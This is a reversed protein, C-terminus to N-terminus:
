TLLKLFQYPSAIKGFTQEYSARESEMLAKHLRLLAERVQALRQNIADSQPQIPHEEKVATLM